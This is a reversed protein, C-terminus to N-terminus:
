HIHIFSYLHIYYINFHNSFVLRFTNSTFMKYLCLISQMLVLLLSSFFVIVVCLFMWYVTYFVTTLTNKMEHHRRQLRAFGSQFWCFFLLVCFELSFYQFLLLYFRVLSHVFFFYCIIYENDTNVTATCLWHYLICMYLSLFLDWSHFILVFLLWIYFCCFSVRAYSLYELRLLSLSNHTCQAYYLFVWVYVCLCMTSTNIQTYVLFFAASFTRANTHVRCASVCWSCSVATATASVAVAIVAFRAHM